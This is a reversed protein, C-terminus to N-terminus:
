APVTPKARSRLRRPNKFAMIPREVFYYSISASVLTLGIVMALMPLFTHPAKPDDPKLYDLWVKHWLYIGYSITGLYM